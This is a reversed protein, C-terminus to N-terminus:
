QTYIKGKLYLAADGAVYVRDQQLRCYLVGGRPSAQYAILENKGFRKAWFPALGAHISGTVPDEHGGSAPWFYRSVFDYDDAPATVVVDYPALTKLLDVNYTMQTVYTEHAYVAVYAQANRWVEEPRHSLGDLLTQPIDQPRVVEPQCNPFNMEIRGQPNRTVVIPGVKATEFQITNEHSVMETFLVHASALTAHGCFDVEMFPSFWRIEYHGSHLRRIYATESLNNEAAISLMESDNLWDNLPIVAAANGQFGLHVFANVIYIDFEM